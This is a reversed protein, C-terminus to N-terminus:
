AVRMASAIAEAATPKMAQSSSRCCVAAFARAARLLETTLAREVIAM